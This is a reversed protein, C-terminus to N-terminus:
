GWKYVMSSTIAMEHLVAILDRYEGNKGLFGFYYLKISEM